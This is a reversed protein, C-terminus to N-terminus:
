THHTDWLYEPHSSKKQLYNLTLNKLCFNFCKLNVFDLFQSNKWMETWGILLFFKDALNVYIEEMEEVAWPAENALNNV